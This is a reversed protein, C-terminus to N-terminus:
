INSERITGVVGDEGSKWERRMVVVEKTHGKSVNKQRITVKMPLSFFGDWETELMKCQM